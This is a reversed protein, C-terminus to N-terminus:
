KYIKQLKSKVWRGRRREERAINRVKRSNNKDWSYSQQNKNM